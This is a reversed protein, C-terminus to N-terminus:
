MFLLFFGGEINLFLFINSSTVPWTAAVRFDLLFARSVAFTVGIGGELLPSTNLEEIKEFGTSTLQHGRGREFGIGIGGFIYLDSPNDPLFDALARVKFFYLNSTIRWDQESRSSTSQGMEASFEAMTRFLPFGIDFERHLTLKSWWGFNYSSERSLVPILVGSALGVRFLESFYEVNEKRGLTVHYAGEPRPEEFIERDWVGGVSFPGLVPSTFAQAACAQVAHLLGGKAPAAM